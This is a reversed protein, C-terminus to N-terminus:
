RGRRLGEVILRCTPTFADTQPDYDYSTAWVNVELFVPADDALAVDWGVSIADPCLRRHADLAMARAERWWPAVVGVFRRRSDPHVEERLPADHHWLGFTKKTVGDCLAGTDLDVRAWIGGQQTNDVDSGDRGMRIATRLVYPARTDPDLATIVRFSSLPAHEPYVARLVPHNRLVPQIVWPTDDPLERLADPSLRMVGFGLDRHPDKVYVDEGRALAEDRTLSPPTPLGERACAALFARKDDLALYADPGEAYRWGHYMAVAYDPRGHAVEHTTFRGKPFLMALEPRLLAHRYSAAGLRAARLAAVLPWLALSLLYLARLPLVARALPSLRGGHLAAFTRGDPRCPRSWRQYPVTMGWLPVQWVTDPADGRLAFRALDRWWALTSVPPLTPDPLAARPADPTDLQTM